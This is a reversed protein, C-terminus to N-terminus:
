KIPLVYMINEALRRLVVSWTANTLYHTMVFFLGGLGVTCWFAFATLYSFFFQHADVFYGILSLVLGAIGVILPIRGAKEVGKMKFTSSDFEM